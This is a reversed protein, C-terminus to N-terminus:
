LIGKIYYLKYSNQIRDVGGGFIEECIIKDVGTHSIQILMIGLEAV